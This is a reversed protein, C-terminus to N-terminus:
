GSRVLKYEQPLKWFARTQQCHQRSFALNVSGKLLLAPWIHLQSTSLCGEAAPSVAQGQTYARRTRNIILLHHLLCFYLRILPNDEPLIFSM